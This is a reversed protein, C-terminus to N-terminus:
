KARLEFYIGLYTSRSIKIDHNRKKKLFLNKLIGSIVLTASKRYNKEATKGIIVERKQQDLM